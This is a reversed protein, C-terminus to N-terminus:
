KCVGCTGGDKKCHKCYKCNKCAKCPTKGKCTAVSNSRAITIEREPSASLSIFSVFLILLTKIM